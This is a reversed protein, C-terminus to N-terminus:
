EAMTPKVLVEAEKQGKRLITKSRQQKEDKEQTTKVNPNKPKRYMIPEIIAGQTSVDKTVPTTNTRPIKKEMGFTLGAFALVCFAILTGEVAIKGYRM